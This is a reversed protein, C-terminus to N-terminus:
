GNNEGDNLLEDWIFDVIKELDLINYSDKMLILSGILMQLKSKTLKVTEM